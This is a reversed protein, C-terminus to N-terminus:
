WWAFCSKDVKIYSAATDVVKRVPTHKTGIIEPSTIIAGLWHFFDIIEQGAIGPFLYKNGGSFGVVEHPFVPGVIMVHDYQTVMRNITLNVPMKFLGGSIEEITEESIAGASVLTEPDNWRHNFFRSKSYKEQHEQESIGLLNYIRDMSMPPHTGLAVLFDLSKVRAALVDYLTRFMLPMPATRTRDPIIVLVRKGDLASNDLAEHVIEVVQDETLISDVLGKGITGMM